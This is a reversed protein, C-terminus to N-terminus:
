RADSEMGFVNRLFAFVPSLPDNRYFADDGHGAGAIVYLSYPRGAKELADVLEMSQRYMGGDARGQAIFFPPTNESVYHLPSAMAAQDPREVASGGLFLPISSPERVAGRSFPTFDAYGFLDIVAQVKSGRGPGDDDQGALNMTTEGIRETVIGGTVGVLAALQAGSSDGLAAIKEPDWGYEEAHARAWRIAAKCDYLQAPFTAKDTLRYDITIAAFGAEAFREAMHRFQEKNGIRWGGGHILLVLPPRSEARHPLYIDLKLPQGMPRSYEVDAFDPARDPAAYMQAEYPVAGGPADDLALTATALLALALRCRASVAVGTRGHGHQRAM